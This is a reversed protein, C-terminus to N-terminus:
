DVPRKAMLAPSAGTVQANPTLGRHNKCHSFGNDGPGFDQGCQSCSVNEFKPKRVPEGLQADILADLEEDRFGRMPRPGFGLIAIACGFNYRLWRYRTADCILADHEEATIQAAKEIDRVPTPDLSDIVADFRTGYLMEWFEGTWYRVELRPHLTRLKHLKTTAAECAKSWTHAERTLRAVEAGFDTALRTDIETRLRRIEGIARIYLVGETPGGESEAIDAALKLEDILDM